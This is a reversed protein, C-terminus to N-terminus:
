ASCAVCDKNDRTCALVPEEAKAKGDVAVTFQTAESASRTRLYYLITKLGMQWGYILMRNLKDAIPQQQYLNMSASQCVFPGRNASLDIYSKMKVEWTTKFLEKLDADLEDLNQVSGGDALIKDKLAVSWLGRELLERVLWRNLVIHQGAKTRRSYLMSTPIEFSETNQLLQSTSATPMLAILTSNRLGVSKIREKLEAWDYYEDGPDVGWLDFQLLGESAPSGLFSEYPGFRDALEVSAELAAHYMTEFIRVNLEAAKKSEFPTHLAYLVDAFGQVGLGLPRHRKNSRECEPQPYLTRDVVGDLVKTVTKVVSHLEEFDFYRGEEGYKVFKSLAISALTCVATEAPNSFLTVENCLNSSKITGLNKQNSKRNVADKASIYPTGTEIISVLVKEWLDRASIVKRARGQAEYSAYLAEFEEGYVDSLGPAESPCFLSWKGDELVRKFFLDPVWLASFLDRARRDEAGVNLRIELFDEVDAHVRLYPILGSSTGGTGNIYAGTARIEHMHVGIGGALKSISAMHGLTEYMGAVSDQARNGLKGLLFCNSAVVGEVMYSHDEDVGLNYVIPDDRDTVEVFVVRLFTSGQRRVSHGTIPRAASTEVDPRLVAITALDLFDPPLRLDYTPVIIEDGRRTVYSHAKSTSLFVEVGRSRLLHFLQDMLTGNPTRIAVGEIGKVRGSSIVLGEMLARIHDNPWTFVGPPLKKAASVGGFLYEFVLALSGSYFEVCTGHPKALVGFTKAGAQRVYQAVREDESRNFGIGAYCTRDDGKVKGRLVHGDGLWMGLLKCFMETVEISRPRIAFTASNRPPCYRLDATAVYEDIQSNADQVHEETGYRLRPEAERLIAWVDIPEPLEKEGVYNPLQIYDGIKLEDAASWAPEGLGDRLTLFKHNETVHLLPSGSIKLALIKRDGRHNKHLQSVERARGEHTIVMDGIRVTEIPKPGELTFVKTGKVFCSALQPMKTGANFITPTAHTYFRGSLLRYTELVAPVDVAGDPSMHMWLAIRMLMHQPREVIKGDKSKLLYMKQLTCLGFYDYCYDRKYDIAEELRDGLDTTTVLEFLLPDLRDQLRRVAGAFTAPTIKHINSVEIRSALVGYEPHTTQMHAAQKAAENDLEETTIGDVLAACVKQAVRIPQAHKLERGTALLDDDVVYKGPENRSATDYFAFPTKALIDLRKSIKDITVPERSGNRKVVYMKDSHAECTTHENSNSFNILSESTPSAKFPRLLQEFESATMSGSLHKPRATESPLSVSRHRESALKGKKKNSSITTYLRKM